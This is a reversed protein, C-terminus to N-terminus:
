YFHTLENGRKIRDLCVMLDDGCVCGLCNKAQLVVAGRRNEKEVSQRVSLIRTLITVSGVLTTPEWAVFKSHYRLVLLYM